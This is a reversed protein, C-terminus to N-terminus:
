LQHRTPLPAAEGSLTYTQGSEIWNTKKKNEAETILENTPPDDTPELTVSDLLTFVFMANTVMGPATQSTWTGM